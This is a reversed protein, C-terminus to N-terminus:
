NNGTIKVVEVVLTNVSGRPITTAAAHPHCADVFGGVANTAAPLIETLPKREGREIEALLEATVRMSVKDESISIAGIGPISPAIPQVGLVYQVGSVAGSKILEECLLGVTKVGVREFEGGLVFWCLDAIRHLEVTSLFKSILEDFRKQYEVGCTDVEIGWGDVLGKVARDCGGFFYGVSGLANVASVIRKLPYNNKGGIVIESEVSIQGAARADELVIKNLGRVEAPAGLQGDGQIGVLAIWALDSNWENLARAFLYCVTSATCESRGSVNHLLPNVLHIENSDVPLIQHHDLILVSLEKPRMEEITPLMGSSFDTLVLVTDRCEDISEIVSKLAAPYPKELAIRRVRKQARNFASFLIAGSSLGDADNHHILVVEKAPLACFWRAAADVSALFPNHPEAPM